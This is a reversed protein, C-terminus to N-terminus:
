LMLFFPMTFSPKVQFLFPSGLSHQQVEDFRLHPPFPFQKALIPNESIQLTSSPVNTKLQSFIHSLKSINMANYRRGITTAPPVGGGEGM